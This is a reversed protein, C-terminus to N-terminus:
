PAGRIAVQVVIVLVAIAVMLLAVSFCFFRLDNNAQKKVKNFIPKVREVLMVDNEEALVRAPKTYTNNTVVMARSCRYHRKAAVVEQVAKLGVPRSYYKCQIAYRRGRKTAIIDAGYDGSSKTVEIKHFGHKKLYKAAHHEYKYGNM